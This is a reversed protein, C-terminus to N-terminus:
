SCRQARNSLRPRDCTDCHVDSSTYLGSKPAEPGAPFVQHERQREFGCKKGANARRSFISISALIDRMVIKQRYKRVPLFNFRRSGEGVPVLHAVRILLISGTLKDARLTTYCLLTLIRHVIMHLLVLVLEGVLALMTLLLKELRCGELNM